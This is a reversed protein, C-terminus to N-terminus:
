LVFEVWSHYTSCTLAIYTACHVLLMGNPVRYLSFSSNFLALNALKLPGSYFSILCVIMSWFTLFHLLGSRAGSTPPNKALKQVSWPHRKAAGAMPRTKTQSSQIKRIPANNLSSHGNLTQLDFDCINWVWFLSKNYISLSNLM